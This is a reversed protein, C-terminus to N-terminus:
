KKVLQVFFKWFDSELKISLNHSFVEFVNQAQAGAEPTLIKSPKFPGLLQNKKPSKPHFNWPSSVSTFSYIIIQTNGFIITGWFPHNILSFGILISSKPTGNNKSVDM